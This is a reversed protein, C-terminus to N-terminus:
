EGREKLEAPNIHWPGFHKHKLMAKAADTSTYIVDTMPNFTYEWLMPNFVQNTVPEWIRGDEIIIWAHHIRPKDDGQVSGHVLLANPHDLIKRGALVYCFGLRENFPAGDEPYITAVRDRLRSLRAESVPGTVGRPMPRDVTRRGPKAGSRADRRPANM